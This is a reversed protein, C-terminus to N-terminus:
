HKKRGKAHNLESASAHHTTDEPKSASGKTHTVFYFPLVFLALVALGVLVVTIDM